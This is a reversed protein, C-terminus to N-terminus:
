DVQIPIIVGYSPQAIPGPYDIPGPDTPPWKIPGKIPRTVGYSPQALFQIQFGGYVAALEKEYVDKIEGDTPNLDLLINTYEEFEKQTFDFGAAQVIQSCEEKSRVTQIQSNFDPDKALREYFAEVSELSM